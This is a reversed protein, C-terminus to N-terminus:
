VGMGLTRDKPHRSVNWPTQAKTVKIMMREPRKMSSSLIRDFIVVCCRNWRINKRESSPAKGDQAKMEQM